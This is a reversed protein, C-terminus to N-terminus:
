THPCIQKCQVKYSEHVSSTIVLHDMVGICEELKTVLASRSSNVEENDADPQAQITRLINQLTERQSAPELLPEARQKRRNFEEELLSLQNRQRSLEAQDDELQAKANKEAIQFGKQAKLRSGVTLLYRAEAVLIDEQPSVQVPQHHPPPKPLSEINTAFAITPTPAAAEKCPEHSVIPSLAHPAEPEKRPIAEHGHVANEKNDTITITTPPPSPVSCLEAAKAIIPKPPQPKFSVPVPPKNNSVSHNNHLPKHVSKSIKVANAPPGSPTNESSAANLAQMYRSPVIRGSKKKPKHGDTDPVSTCISSAPSPPSRPDPGNECPFPITNTTCAISERSEACRPLSSQPRLTGSPRLSHYASASPSPDNLAMTSRRATHRPAFAM